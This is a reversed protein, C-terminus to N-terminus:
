CIQQLKIISWLFIENLSHFHSKKLVKFFFFISTALRAWILLRTHHCLWGGGKKGKKPMLTTWFNKGMEGIEMMNSNSIGIPGLIFQADKNKWFECSFGDRVAHRMLGNCLFNKVESKSSIQLTIQKQARSDSNWTLIETKEDTRTASVSPTYNKGRFVSLM